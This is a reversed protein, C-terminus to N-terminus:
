NARRAALSAMMLAIVSVIGIAIVVMTMRNLQNPLETVAKAKERLNLPMPM